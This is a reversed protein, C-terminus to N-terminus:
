RDPFFLICEWTSREDGGCRCRKMGSRMSRAVSSPASGKASLHCAKPISCRVAGPSSTTSRCATRTSCRTASSIFPITQRGACRCRLPTNRASSNSSRGSRRRRASRSHWSISSRSFWSRASHFRHTKYPGRGRLAMGLVGGPNCIAIDAEGSVVADVSQASDSALFRTRWQEAGQPRMLIMVQKDPWEDAAVLESVAELMLRSRISPPVGAANKVTLM